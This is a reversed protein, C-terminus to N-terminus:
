FNLKRFAFSYHCFWKLSLFLCMHVYQNSLGVLGCEAKGEVSFNGCFKTKESRNPNNTIEVNHLLYDQELEALFGLASEM